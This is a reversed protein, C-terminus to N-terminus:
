SPCGIRPQNLEKAAFVTTEEEASISDESQHEEQIDVTAAHDPTDTAHVETTEIEQHETRVRIAIEEQKVTELQKKNKIQHVQDALRQETVEIQENHINHAKWQDLLRKRYGRREPESRIYCEFLRKNDEM